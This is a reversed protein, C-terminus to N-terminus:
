LTPDIGENLAGWPSQPKREYKTSNGRRILGLISITTFYGVALVLIIFPIFSFKHQLFKIDVLVVLLPIFIRILRAGAKM